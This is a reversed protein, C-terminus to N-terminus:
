AGVLAVMATFGAHRWAAAVDDEAGLAIVAGGGGAGTLKAGTAGHRAALECLRDIGPSSLGLTTLHRQAEGFLPGLGPVDGQELLARGALALEGLRALLAETTAPTAQLRAAVDSVRAATSRPEGSLGIALRLPPVSLRRLGEGRRYLGVGGRTALAVDIGSPNAHFIREAAGAVREVEDDALPPGVAAAMARALAVALAASSGLGAGPPLTASAVVALPARVGLAEKIAQFARWVPHAPDDMWLAEPAWDPLELRDSAAPSATASVGLGLAAALAPHGYVVAHEGLLIVKGHAM